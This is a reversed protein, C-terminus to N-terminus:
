PLLAELEAHRAALSDCEKTSHFFDCGDYRESRYTMAGNGLAMRSVVSGSSREVEVIEGTGFMTAQTILVRDNPLYDIDGLFDEKWSNETWSWLLTATRTVPDIQWEQAASNSRDQGNDYVLLKDGDVELGHQCQPLVAEGLPYGAADLLTWGEGRGFTWKELGTAPDIVVVSQSFCLSVYIEEGNPGDVLDMWNAHWPDQNFGGGPPLSGADVLTQSDIDIDIVGSAPDVVRIGFGDWSDNGATNRRIELTMLRGDDLMKGDHHFEQSQWGAPAFAYTEGEWMDLIRPRGQDDMGGGWVLTRDGHHRAEIWMGVGSPLTTWWRPQGGPGWIVIYTTGGFMNKTFPAMTWSGQMEFYPNTTVTLRELTSPPNGALYAADAPTGVLPDCVPVATCTYATAPLLGMLQLSHSTAAGDSEVFFVETPDLDSTCWGAVEAESDVEVILEVMTPIQHGVTTITTVAATCVPPPTGTDTTVSDVTASDTTASDVLSTDGSDVPTDDDDDGPIDDDDDDGPTADDDDGPTTVDDGDGSTPETGKDETGSCGLALTLLILASRHM